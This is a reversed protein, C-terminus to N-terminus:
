TLRTLLQACNPGRAPVACPHPHTRHSTRPYLPPRLAVCTCTCPQARASVHRYIHMHTRLVPHPAARSGDGVVRPVACGKFTSYSITHLPMCTGRPGWRGRLTLGQAAAHEGCCGTVVQFGMLVYQGGKSEGRGQRAAAAGVTWEM